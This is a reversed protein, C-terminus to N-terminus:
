LPVSRLASTKWGLPDQRGAVLEIPLAVRGVYDFREPRVEPLACVALEELEVYESPIAVQLKPLASPAPWVM